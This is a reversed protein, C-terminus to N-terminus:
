QLVSCPPAYNSEQQGLGIIFVTLVNLSVSLQVFIVFDCLFCSEFYRIPPSLNVVLLVLLPFIIVDGNNRLSISCFYIYILEIVWLFIHQFKWVKISLLFPKFLFFFDNHKQDVTANLVCRAFCIQTDGHSGPVPVYPVPVLVQYPVTCYRTCYQVLYRYRYQVSLAM